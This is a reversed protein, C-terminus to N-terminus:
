ELISLHKCKGHYTFGTCTCTREDPDVYYIKGKSGPVEILMSKKTNFLTIDGKEFKRGKRDFLKIPAKFYFPVGGVPCYAILNGGDLLYTHNPFEWDTTERIAEM